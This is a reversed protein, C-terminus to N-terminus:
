DSASLCRSVSRSRAFYKRLNAQVKASFKAAERRRRRIRERRILGERLLTSPVDDRFRDEVVNEPQWQFNSWVTERASVALPSVFRVVSRHFAVQTGPTNLHMATEYDQVAYLLWLRASRLSSYDQKGFTVWSGAFMHVDSRLCQEVIQRRLALARGGGEGSEGACEAKSTERERTEKERM